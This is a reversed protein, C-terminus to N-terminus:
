LLDGQVRSENPTIIQNRYIEVNKNNNKNQMTYLEKRSNNNHNKNKKNEM